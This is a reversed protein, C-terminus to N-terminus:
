SIQGTLLKDGCILAIDDPEEVECRFEIGLAFPVGHNRIASSGRIAWLLAM